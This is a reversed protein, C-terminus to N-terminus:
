EILGQQRLTALGFLCVKQYPIGSIDKPLRLGRAIQKPGSKGNCSALLQASLPSLRSVELEQNGIERTAILARSAPVAALPEHNRLCKLIRHYDAGLRM